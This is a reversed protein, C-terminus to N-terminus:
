NQVRPTCRQRVACVNDIIGIEVLHGPFLDLRGCDRHRHIQMEIKDYALM